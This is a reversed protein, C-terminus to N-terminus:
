LGFAPTSTDIIGLEFDTTNLNLNNFRIGVDDILTINMEMSIPDLEIETYTWSPGIMKYPGSLQLSSLKVVANIQSGVPGVVVEFQTSNVATENSILSLNGILLSLELGGSIWVVGSIEENNIYQLVEERQNVYYAWSVFALEEELAFSLKALNSIPLSHIIIKFSANSEKLETKFWNLQQDTMISTTNKETITDLFFLDLSPGWSVKRYNSTDNISFSEKFTKKLL